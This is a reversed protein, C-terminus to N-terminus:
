TAEGLAARLVLRAEDRYHGRMNAPCDWWRAPDHCDYISAAVREIGEDSQLEQEWQSRLFPLAALLARRANARVRERDDDDLSDWGFDSYGFGWEAIVDLAEQPIETV